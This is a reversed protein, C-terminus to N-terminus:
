EALRREVWARVDEPSFGYRDKIDKMPLGLAEAPVGWEASFEELPIGTMAAIDAFSMWGKIASDSGGGAHGEGQGLGEGAGSHGAGRAEARGEMQWDFAGSLTTAGVIGVMLAVVVGTAALSSARAGGPATVKLAGPVPCSNVCENCSICESSTVVDATAVEVNMMCAKDCRGCDICADADRRINLFSVRSLLGLLAGAPCLYKCLFREYVLSGALSAVLVALGIGYTALLDPATLHAWAVWPDYPRLVLEAAQWTWLAFFVLVAYKLYRAVRDVAHPVTLRRRMLRRGAAGFLGQLTGLPCLTGCFSRRYAVAMALMGVLLIVSSAATHRLLGDGALLSYLTELGGFPCLFDVGAWRGDGRAKQHSYVIATMGALVVGLVIWRAWRSRTRSAQDARRETM